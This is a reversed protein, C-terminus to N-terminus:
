ASFSRLMWAMSEHSRLIGILLDATGEDNYKETVDAIDTRVARVIQEHDALLADIMTEADTVLEKPEAIRTLDLFERLTGVPHGGLKRTREAVEDAITQLTNYQEEFFGHLPQFHIGTINWHFNRTKTYLLHEDALLTNLREIVAASSETELGNKIDMLQKTNTKTTNSKAM